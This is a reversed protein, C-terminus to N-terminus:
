GFLKMYYMIYKIYIYIYIKQILGFLSKSQGIDSVVRYGMNASQKSFKAEGLQEQHIHLGTRM